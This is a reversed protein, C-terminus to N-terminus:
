RQYKSCAAYLYARLSYFKYSCPFTLQRKISYQPPYSITQQWNRSFIKLGSVSKLERIVWAVM